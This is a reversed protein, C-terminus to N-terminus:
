KPTRGLIDDRTTEAVAIIADVDAQGVGCSVLAKTLTELIVNFHEDTLKLRAHAARMSKGNYDKGGLVHVLFKTQMRRQRTMDTNVFFGNVREDKLLNEYFVNVVAEVAAEGGIREFLGSM